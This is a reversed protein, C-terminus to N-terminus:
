YKKDPYYSTSRSRFPHVTGKELNGNEFLEIRTYENISGSPDILIANAYISVWKDESNENDVWFFETDFLLGTKVNGNEHFDIAFRSRFFTVNHDELQKSYGCWTTPRGKNKITQGNRVVVNSVVGTPFFRIEGYTLTDAGKIKITNYKEKPIITHVTGDEHFSTKSKAKSTLTHEGIVFEIEHLFYASKLAGSRHFHLFSQGYGGGFDEDQLRHLPFGSYLEHERGAIEIRHATDGGQEYDGPIWLRGSEFAGALLGIKKDEWYFKLSHWVYPLDGIKIWSRDWKPFEKMKTWYKYLTWNDFKDSLVLTNYYRARRSNPEKLYIFHEYIVEHLILGARHDNANDNISFADWLDKSFTFTPDDSHEPVERIVIQEVECHAPFFNSDTDPIDKLVIDPIFVTLTNEQDLIEHARTRYKEALIPEFRLLRDLAFDVKAKTAAWEDNFDVDAYDPDQEANLSINIHQKVRKTRAEYYDYLEIETITKAPTSLDRCVRVDGGNGVKGGAYMSTSFCILMGVLVSQYARYEIM